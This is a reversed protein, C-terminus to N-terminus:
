PGILRLRWPCPVRSALLTVHTALRVADVKLTAETTSRGICRAGAAAEFHIGGGWEDPVVPATGVAVRIAAEGIANMELAAEAAGLTKVSARGGRHGRGADRGRRCRIKWTPM